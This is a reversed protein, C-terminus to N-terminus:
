GGAHQSARAIASAVEAQDGSVSKVHAASTEVGIEVGAGADTETETGISTATAAM